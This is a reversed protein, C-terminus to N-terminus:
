GKEDKGEIGGRKADTGEGGGRGKAEKGKRKERRGKMFRAAAM